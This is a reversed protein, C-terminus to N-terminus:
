NQCTNNGIIQPLKTNNASTIAMNAKPKCGKNRNQSTNYGTAKNEKHCITINNGDPQKYQCINNGNTKTATLIVVKIMLQVLLHVVSTTATIEKHCINNSPHSITNGHIHNSSTIVM